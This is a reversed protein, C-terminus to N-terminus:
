PTKQEKIKKEKESLLARLRKIENDKKSSSDGNLRLRKIISDKKRDKEKLTSNLEKLARKKRKLSANKSELEEVRKQTSKLLADLANQNVPPKIPTSSVPQPQAVPQPTAPPRPVYQPPQPPTPQQWAGRGQMAVVAAVPISFQPAPLQNKNLAEALLRGFEDVSAPPSVKQPSKSVNTSMTEGGWDGLLRHSIVDGQRNPESAYM